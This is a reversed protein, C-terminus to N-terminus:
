KTRPVEYFLRACNRIDVQDGKPASHSVFVALEDDPFSQANTWYGRKSGRNWAKKAWELWEREGSVSYARAFIDTMFRTHYGSHPGGPDHPCNAHSDDWVARDYVKGEDPFGIYPKPIAHECKRSWYYDRACKAMDVVLKKAEADNMVEAYRAVAEACAAYEFSQATSQLMWRKGEKDNFYLVGRETKWTLGKEEMYQKLRPPIPPERGPRPELNDRVFYPTM